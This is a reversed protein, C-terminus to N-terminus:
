SGRGARIIKRRNEPAFDFVKQRLRKAAIGQSYTRQRELVKERNAAYYRRSRANVKERNERAWKKYYERHTLRYKETQRYRDNAMYQMRNLDLLASVNPQKIGMVEGIARQTLGQARFDHAEQQRPTM